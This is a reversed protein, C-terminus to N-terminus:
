RGVKMKFTKYLQKIRGCKLYPIQGPSGARRYSAYVESFLLLIFLLYIFLIKVLVM